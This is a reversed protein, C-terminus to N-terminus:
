VLGKKYMHYLELHCFHSYSHPNSVECICVHLKLHGLHFNSVGNMHWNICLMVRLTVKFWAKEEICTFLELHCLHSYSHPNSVECICVHLKLHGLHFNSVGNMHWNICLMVRLTVKFWAKKYMHCLELYYFHFYSHPNSM